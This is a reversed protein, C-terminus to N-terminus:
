PVFCGGKASLSRSVWRQSEKLGEADEKMNIAEISNIDYWGTMRMGFNLTIPRLPATPFIFRTHKLDAQLQPGIDAWGSGTDGLGHLFLVSSTPTGKPELKIPAPYRLAAMSVHANRAFSPRNWHKQAPLSAGKFLSGATGQAFGKGLLMPLVCLSLLLPLAINYVTAEEERWKSLSSMRLTQTSCSRAQVLSCRGDAVTLASNNGEAM